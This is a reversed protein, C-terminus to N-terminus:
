AVREFREGSRVVTNTLKPSIQTFWKHLSRNLLSLGLSQLNPLECSIERGNPKRLKCEM